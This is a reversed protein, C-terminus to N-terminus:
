RYPSFVSPLGHFTERGAAGHFAEFGGRVDLLPCLAILAIRLRGRPLTMLFAPLLLFYWFQVNAHTKCFLVFAIPALYAMRARVGRARACAVLLVALFGYSAIENVAILWPGNWAFMDARPNWYYPNYVLLSGFRFVNSVGRYSLEALASPLLGLALGALGMRLARPGAHRLRLLVWPLLAAATLKVSIALAIAIGCLLPASGVLLLALLSFFGQLPEFQGERSVWWISMPSAWYALGLWPSRNLKGILMANAAELLTLGLKAAFITPSMSALLAFFALTVPPYSYPFRSWSIEAWRPSFDTLAHGAASLGHQGALAGYLVNRAIDGTEIPLQLCEILRALAVLVALGALLWRLRRGRTGDDGTAVPTASAGARLQAPSM